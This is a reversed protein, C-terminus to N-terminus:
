SIRPIEKPPNSLVSYVLDDFMYEVSVFTNHETWMRSAIQYIVRTVVQISMTPDREIESTLSELASNRVISTYESESGHLWQWVVIRAYAIFMKGQSENDYTQVVADRITVNLPDRM